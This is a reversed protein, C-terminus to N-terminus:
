GAGHAGVTPLFLWTGDHPAQSLEGPRGDPQLFYGSYGMKGLAAKVSGEDWGARELRARHGRLLIRPRLRQLTRAGGTLVDVECGGANVRVWDLRRLGRRKFWRDLTDTSVRTTSSRERGAEGRAASSPTRYPTRTTMNGSGARTSLATTEVAVRTGIGNLAVNRELAARRAPLPEFAFVRGRSARASAVLTFWGEGAGVDAVVADGALERDLLSSLGREHFRREHLYVACHGPDTFSGEMRLGRDFVVISSRAGGHRHFFELAMPSVNWVAPELAADASAARLVRRM